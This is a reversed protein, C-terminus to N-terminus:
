TDPIMFCTSDNGTLLSMCRDMLLMSEVLSTMDEVGCFLLKRSERPKWFHRKENRINVVTKATPM